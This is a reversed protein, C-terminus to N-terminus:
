ECHEFGSSVPGYASMPGLVGKLTASSPLCPLGSDGHHIWSYVGFVWHHRNKISNSLSSLLVHGLYVEHYRNSVSTFGSQKRTDFRRTAWYPESVKGNLCLRAVATPELPNTTLHLRTAFIM